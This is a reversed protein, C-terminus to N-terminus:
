MRRRLCSRDRNAVGSAVVEDKMAWETGAVGYAATGKRSVAVNSVLGDVTSPEESRCVCASALLKMDGHPREEFPARGLVALLLAVTVVLLLAVMVVVPGNGKEALATGVPLWRDFLARGLVAALVAVGNNSAGACSV